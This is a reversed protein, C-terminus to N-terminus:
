QHAVEQQQPARVPECAPTKDVSVRVGDRWFETWYQPHEKRTVKVTPCRTCQRRTSYPDSRDPEGWKHKSIKM